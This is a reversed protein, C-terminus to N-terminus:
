QQEARRAERAGNTHREAPRLGNHILEEGRLGAPIEYADIKAQDAVLQDMGEAMGKIMAAKLGRGFEIDAM